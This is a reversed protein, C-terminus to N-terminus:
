ESTEEAAEAAARKAKVIRRIQATVEDSDRFLESYEADNPGRDEEVMQRIMGLYKAKRESIEPVLEIAGAIMDIVRVLLLAVAPDM